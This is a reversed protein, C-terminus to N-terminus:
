YFLALRKGPDYTLQKVQSMTKVCAVGGQFM